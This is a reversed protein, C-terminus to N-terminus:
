DKLLELRKDRKSKQESICKLWYAEFLNIEERALLLLNYKNQKRKNLNRIVGLKYSQFLCSFQKRARKERESYVIINKM